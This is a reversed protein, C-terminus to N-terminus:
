KREIRATEAQAKRKLEANVEVRLDTMAQRLDIKSRDSGDFYSRVVRDALTLLDEDTM